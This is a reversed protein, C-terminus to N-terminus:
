DDTAFLEVLRSSVARRPALALELQRFAPVCQARRHRRQVEKVVHTAGVALWPAVLVVTLLWLVVYLRLAPKM